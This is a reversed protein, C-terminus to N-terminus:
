TIARTALSAVTGNKGTCGFRAKQDGRLVEKKIWVNSTMTNRPGISHVAAKKLITKELQLREVEKRLRRNEEELTEGNDNRKAVAASQFQQAWKHLSNPTVGLDEAVASVTRAGRNQMLRVADRKFEDNYNKRKKAMTWEGLANNSWKTEPM